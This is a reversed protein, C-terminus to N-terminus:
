WPSFSDNPLVKCQNECCHTPANTNGARAVSPDLRAFRVGRRILGVPDVDLLLAATCREESTEPYFVHATGFPLPFQQM